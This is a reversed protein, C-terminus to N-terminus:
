EIEKKRAEWAKNLIKNAKNIATLLSGSLYVEEIGVGSVVYVNVGDGDIFLDVHLTSANNQERKFGLYWNPNKIKEVFGFKSFLKNIEENM